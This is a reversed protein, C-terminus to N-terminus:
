SFEKSALINAMSDYNLHIYLPFIKLSAIKDFTQSGGNTIVTLNNDHTCDQIDPVLEANSDISDKSCTDLLLWM